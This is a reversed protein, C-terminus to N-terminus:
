VKNPHPFDVQPLLHQVQNPPLKQDQLHQMIQRCIKSFFFILVHFNLTVYDIEFDFSIIFYSTRVTAANQQSIPFGIPTIPAASLQYVAKSRTPVAHNAQLNQFSFFFLFM